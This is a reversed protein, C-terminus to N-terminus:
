SQTRAIKLIYLLKGALSVVIAPIVTPWLSLKLFRLLLFLVAILVFLRLVEWIVSALRKSAPASPNFALAGFTRFFGFADAFGVAAGACLSILINVSPETFM